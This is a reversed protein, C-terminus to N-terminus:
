MNTTNEKWYYAAEQELNLLLSVYGSFLGSTLVDSIAAHFPWFQGDQLYKICKQGLCKWNKCKLVTNLINTVWMFIFALQCKLWGGLQKVSLESAEESIYFDGASYFNFGM